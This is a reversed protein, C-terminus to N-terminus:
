QVLGRRWSVWFSAILYGGMLVTLMTWSSLDPVLALKALTAWVFLALQMTWFCLAGTQAIISRTLEDSRQWLRINLWSQGALAALIAAAAPAGTSSLDALNALLPPAALLLGALTAVAAQVRAAWIADPDVAEGPEMTRDIMRAYRAPSSAAFWTMAGAFVLIAAIALSAIDEGPWPAAGDLQGTAKLWKGVVFGFGGGVVGGALLMVGIRVLKQRGSVAENAMITM